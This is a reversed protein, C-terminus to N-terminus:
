KHVKTVSENKRKAIQNGTIAQTKLYDLCSCGSNSTVSHTCQHKLVDLHDLASM